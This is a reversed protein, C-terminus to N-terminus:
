KLIKYSTIAKESKKRTTPNTWRYKGIQILDTNALEKKASRLTKVNWGMDCALEEDKRFFFDTEDSNYQQQLENLWFFLLKANDSLEKKWIERSVQMFYVKGENMCISSEKENLRM